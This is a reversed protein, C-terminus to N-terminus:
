AGTTCTRQRCWNWSWSLRLYWYLILKRQLAVLKNIIVMVKRLIFCIQLRWDIICVPGVGDLCQFYILHATFVCMWSLTLLLPTEYFFCSSVLGQLVVWLANPLFYRFVAFCQGEILCLNWTIQCTLFDLIAAVLLPVALHQMAVITVSSGMQVRFHPVGPLLVWLLM